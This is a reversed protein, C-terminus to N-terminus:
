KDYKRRQFFCYIEILVVDTGKKGLVSKLKDPYKVILGHHSSRKPKKCEEAESLIMHQFIITYMDWM